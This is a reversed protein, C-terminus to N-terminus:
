ATIDVLSCPVLGPGHLGLSRTALVLGFIQAELSLDFGFIRAKLGLGLM